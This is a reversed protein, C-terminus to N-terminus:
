NDAQIILNFSIQILIKTNNGYLILLTQTKIIIINKVHSNETM